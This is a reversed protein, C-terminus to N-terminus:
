ELANFKYSTIAAHEMLLRIIEKSNGSNSRALNLTTQKNIDRAKVGTNNHAAAFHLPRDNDADKAQIEAGRELLLHVVDTSNNGAAKHLPTHNDCNTVEIEAGHKLLINVFETSCYYAAYRLPTQNNIDRAEIEAGHELLLQASETSNEM